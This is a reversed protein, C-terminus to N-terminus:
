QAIRENSITQKLSMGEPRKHKWRKHTWLWFQPQEFITRELLKSYDQTIKGPAMKGPDEAVVCYELTYFGRKIKNIKGFAVGLNYERAYKETGFSVATEQNLFNMWYAKNPNSPSQDAIFGTITLNNKSDELKEVLLATSILNLGFRSRSQIMCNNFVKNKIPLYIGQPLYSSQLPLSLAAWEWNGYHGTVAILSIKKQYLIELVEPNLLKMRKKLSSKSITFSKITEAIIDCFHRYFQTEIKELELDSKEPFTNKLNSRTVMKRYGIIQYLLVYLSDSLLYLVTMPLISLVYILGLVPYSVVETLRTKILKKM